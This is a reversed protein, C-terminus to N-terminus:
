PKTWVTSWRWMVHRRYRAGPLVDAVIRRAEAFTEAPPWVKPAYTEAFPKTLRHVRTAVAGAADYPLDAPFRSRALGVVAVTGGPRVVEKMRQLGAATGMQHLVTVAVAAHFPEDFPYTLFDGLVYDINPAPNTARAFEVIPPDVDIATVHAVKEALQRALYGEGCGVELVRGSGAAVADLVLPYYHV